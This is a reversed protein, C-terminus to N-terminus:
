KESTMQKMKQKYFNVIVTSPNIEAKDLYCLNEKGATEAIVQCCPGMCLPLYKCVICQENDFAAKGYRIAMKSEKWKIEGTELLEGMVYKDSYDRATCRYVKGDFNIEAHYLKDVYCKHTQGVKFVGSGGLQNFGLECCTDYLKKRLINENTENTESFSQWVKQFDVSINKRHKDKFLKFVSELDCIHLTQNDYNIRLIIQITDIKECLMEINHIIRDFSPEGNENRVKNHRAADGDLTIQLRSMGIEWMKAVMADDIKYGNTTADCYFPINHEECLRKTHMSIPYVIESFCLLPEGGFWSLRFSDVHKEKIMYTIHKKVKEIMNKDMQGKSHTQYCYWCKFNCDLTPNLVLMYDRNVFVENRNRYRLIDVEDISSDVIFGWERFKNFISTYNIEFSILDNFLDQISKHEVESMSFVQNSLGNFYIVRGENEIFYSYNSLKYM